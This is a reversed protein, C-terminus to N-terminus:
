KLSDLNEDIYDKVRQDDCGNKHLWLLYSDPVNAMKFGKYKGWPMLSSDTLKQKPLNM